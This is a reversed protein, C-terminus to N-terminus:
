LACGVSTHAHTKYILWRDGAHPPATCIASLHTGRRHRVHDNHVGTFSRQGIRSVAQLSRADAKPRTQRATNPTMARM